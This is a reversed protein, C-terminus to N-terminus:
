ENKIIENIEKQFETHLLALFGLEKDSCDENDRRIIVYDTFDIFDKSYVANKIGEEITPKLLIFRWAKETDLISLMSEIVTKWGSVNEQFRNEISSNFIKKISKKKNEETKFRSPIDSVESYKLALQNAITIIRDIM